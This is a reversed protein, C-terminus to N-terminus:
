RGGEPLEIGSKMGRARAAEIEEKAEEEVSPVGIIEEVEALDNRLLAAISRTTLLLSATAFLCLGLLWLGQPFILPTQLPSVARASLDWSSFVLGTGSHVMTFAFGTLAVISLLHLLARGPRPVFRLVIDVRIHARTFLAYSFGFAATIGFVYGGYEDLGQISVGAFKRLMVELSVIMSFIIIAWGSLVALTDSVTSLAQSTKKLM